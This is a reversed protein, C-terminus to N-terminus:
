SGDTWFSDPLPADFDDAIIMQGAHLGLIRTTPPVIVPVLRARPTAGDVLIVEGGGAIHSLAEDLRQPLDRIDITPTM